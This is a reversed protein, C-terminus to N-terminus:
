AEVEEAIAEQVETMEEELAEVRVEMDSKERLGFTVSIRGDDLILRVPMATIILDDYTGTVMGDHLFEVHSCNYATLQNCVELAAAETEAIHEIHGLSAGDEIQFTYGNILRLEDM